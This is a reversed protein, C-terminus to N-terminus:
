APVIRVSVFQRFRFLVGRRATHPGEGEIPPLCADPHAQEVADSDTVDEGGAGGEHRRRWAVARALASAIEDPAAPKALFGFAGSARAEHATQLSGYGSLILVPLRPDISQLQTLLETGDMQPMRLDILAADIEPRRGARLRSLAVRPDCEAVVLYGKRELVPILTALVNPEDDVLLVCAAAAPSAPKM